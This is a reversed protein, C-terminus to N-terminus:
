PRKALRIVEVRLSIYFVECTQTAVEAVFGSVTGAYRCSARTLRALKGVVCCLGPNAVRGSFSRVASSLSSALERLLAGNTVSALKVANGHSLSDCLATCGSSHPAQQAVAQLPHAGQRRMPHPGCQLSVACSRGRAEISLCAPLSSVGQSQVFVRGAERAARPAPLSRRVFVREPLNIFSKFSVITVEARGWHLRPWPVTSRLVLPTCSFSLAGM